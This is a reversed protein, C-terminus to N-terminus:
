TKFVSILHSKMVHQYILSSKLKVRLARIDVATSMRHKILM